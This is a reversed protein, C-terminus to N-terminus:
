MFLAFGPSGGGSSPPYPDISLARSRNTECEIEGWTHFRTITSHFKIIWMAFLKQETRKEM